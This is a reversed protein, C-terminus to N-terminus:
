YVAKYDGVFGSRSLKQDLTGRVGTRSIEGPERCKTNQGTNQIQSRCKANQLKTNEVKFKTGRHTSFYSYMKCHAKTGRQTSDTTVVKSISGGAERGDAAVIKGSGQPAEMESKTAYLM